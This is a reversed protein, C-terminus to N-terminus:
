LCLLVFDDDAVFDFGLLIVTVLGEADVGIRLFRSLNTKFLFIHQDDDRFLLELFDSGSTGGCM